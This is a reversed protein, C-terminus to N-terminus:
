PEVPGCDDAVLVSADYEQLDWTNAANGQCVYSVTETLDRTSFTIGSVWTWSNSIPVNLWLDLVGSHQEDACNLTESLSIQRTSVSQTYTYGTCQPHVAAQAAAPPLVTAALAGTIGLLARPRM